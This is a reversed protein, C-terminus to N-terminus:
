GPPGDDAQEETGASKTIQTFVLAGPHLVAKEKKRFKPPIELTGVPSLRGGRRAKGCLLINLLWM